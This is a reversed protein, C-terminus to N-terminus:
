DALNSYRQRELKSAFKTIATNDAWFAMGRVIAWSNGIEALRRGIALHGLLPCNQLVRLSGKKLLKWRAEQRHTPSPSVGNQGRAEAGTYSCVVRWISDGLARPNLGHAGTVRNM